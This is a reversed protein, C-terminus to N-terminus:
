NIYVMTLQNWFNEAPVQPNDGFIDIKTVKHANRLVLLGFKTIANIETAVQDWTRNKQADFILYENRLKEDSTDLLLGLGQYLNLAEMDDWDRDLLELQIQILKGKALLEHKEFVKIAEAKTWGGKPVDVTYHQFGYPTTKVSKLEEALIFWM